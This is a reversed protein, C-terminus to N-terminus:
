AELTEICLNAYANCNCLALKLWCLFVSLFAVFRWSLVFLLQFRYLVMNKNEGPSEWTTVAYFTPSIGEAESM